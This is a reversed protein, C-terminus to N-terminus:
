AQKAGIGQVGNMSNYKRFRHIISYSYCYRDLISSSNLGPLKKPETCSELDRAEGRCKKAPTGRELGLIVRIDLRARVRLIKLCVVCCVKNGFKANTELDLKLIGMEAKKKERALLEGNRPMVKAKERV